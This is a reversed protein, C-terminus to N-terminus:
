KKKLKDDAGKTCYYHIHRGNKLVYMPNYKTAGKGCESCAFQLKEKKM